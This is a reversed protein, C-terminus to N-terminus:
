SPQKSQIFSLGLMWNPAVAGFQATAFDSDISHLYIYTHLYYSSPQRLCSSFSITQCRPFYVAGVALQKVKQRSPAGLDKPLVYMFRGLYEVLFPSTRKRIPLTGLGTPQIRLIRVPVCHRERFDDVAM